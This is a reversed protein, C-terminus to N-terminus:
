FPPTEWGFNEIVPVLPSFGRDQKRIVSLIWWERETFGLFLEGSNAFKCLVM